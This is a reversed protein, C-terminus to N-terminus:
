VRLTKNLPKFGQELPLPWVKVNGPQCSLPLTQLRCGNEKDWDAYHRENKLVGVRALSSMMYSVLDSNLSWYSQLTFHGFLFADRNQLHELLWCFSSKVLCLFTTLLDRCPIPNGNISANDKTSVLWFISQALISPNLTNPFPFRISCFVIRASKKFLYILKHHQQFRTIGRLGRDSCLAKSQRGLSM